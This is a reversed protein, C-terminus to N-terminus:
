AERAMVLRCAQHGFIATYCALRAEVTSVAIVPTRLELGGESVDVRHKGQESCTSLGRPPSSGGCTGAFHRTLPTEPIPRGSGGVQVGVAVDCTRPYNRAPGRKACRSRRNGLPGATTPAPTGPPERAGDVRRDRVGPLRTRCRGIRRIGRRGAARRIDSSECSFTRDTRVLNRGSGRAPFTAAALRQVVRHPRSRDGTRRLTLDLRTHM